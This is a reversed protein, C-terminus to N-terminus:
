LSVVHEDNEALLFRDVVVLDLRGPEATFELQNVVGRSLSHRNQADTKAGLRKTTKMAARNFRGVRWLNAPVLDLRATVRLNHGSRPELEVKVAADQGSLCFEPRDGRVGHLGKAHALVDADLEVGLDVFTLKPVPEFSIKDLM